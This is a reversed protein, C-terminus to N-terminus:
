FSQSADIKKLIEQLAKTNKVHNKSEFIKLATTLLEKAKERDGLAFYTLGKEKLFYAQRIEPLNRIEKNYPHDEALRLYFEAKKKDGAKAYLRALQYYTLCYSRDDKNTNFSKILNFSKIAFKIAEEIKGTEEYFRSLSDYLDVLSPEGRYKEEYRQLDKILKEAEEYKKRSVLFNFMTLLTDFRSYDHGIEEAIKLSKELFPWSKSELGLIEYLTALNNYVLVLSSMTRMLEFAQKAEKLHKLAKDFDGTSVYLLGINYAMIGIGERYGIERYINLAIKYHKLALDYQQMNDYLIGLNNHIGALMKIDGAKERYQLSKKFYKEAEKYKARHMYIAGLINYATGLAKIESDPIHQLAEKVIELAKSPQGNEHYEWAIDLMYVYKKYEITADKYAREYWTIAKNSMGMASFADGIKQAIDSREEQPSLNYAKEYYEIAKEFEGLYSYANGIKLTLTKISESEKAYKLAMQYYDIARRYAYVEMAMDGAKEAYYLTKDEVGGEYFHLALEEYHEKLNQSYLTEIAKGINRHLMKLKGTSINHIVVEKIIGEKFRYFMDDKTTLILRKALLDLIDYIEGENYGTVLAVLEPDIEGQIVALYELVHQAEEPLKALRKKIIEEISKPPEELEGEVDWTEGKLLLKNKEHLSRIIEEIFFPNGGSEKYVFESLKETVGGNLIGEIMQKTETYSLPGLPLTDYLRERGLITLIEEAKTGKIEDDKMTAIYVMNPATKIVYYLLEASEPDIWHLDDIFLAAKTEASLINFFKSIAEYLTYRDLTFRSSNEPFKHYFPTLKILENKLIEPFNFLIKEFVTRHSLYLNKLLEKTTYYPINLITGQATGKIVRIGGITKLVHNVLRTKGIGTEGSIIHLVGPINLFQTVKSIEERRGVLVPLPIRLTIVKTSKSGIKGKGTRKASYLSRDATEFLEEWIVGDDPYTAIGISCSLPIGEINENKLREIIRQALRFAGKYTTDPLLLIFEDGGYRAAIDSERITEILINAFKKLALDGKLHGLTDNIEKFNDLDLLLISFSSNYRRARKIEHEAYERLYRRNYLGTLEDRNIDVPM